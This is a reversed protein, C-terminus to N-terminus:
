SFVCESLHKAENRFCKFSINPNMIKHWWKLYNRRRLKLKRKENRLFNKELRTRDKGVGKEKWYSSHTPEELLLLVKYEEDNERAFALIEITEGLTDLSNLSVFPKTIWQKIDCFAPNLACCRPRWLAIQTRSPHSLTTAGSTVVGIGFTIETESAKLWFSSRM